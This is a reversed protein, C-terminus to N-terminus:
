PNDVYERFRQNVIMEISHQNAMNDDYEHIYYSTYISYQKFYPCIIIYKM